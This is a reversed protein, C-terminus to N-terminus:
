SREALVAVAPIAVLGLLVGGVVDSTWHENLYVRTAAILAVYALAVLLLRRRSARAAVLLASGIALTVARTMHGSPFSGSTEPGGGVTFTLARSIGPGPHDIVVKLVVEAGQVVALGGLLALVAPRSGPRRVALIVAIVVVYTASAVGSATLALMSAVIDIAHDHHAEIVDRVSRDISSFGGSTVVVVSAAFLAILLATLPAARRLRVIM